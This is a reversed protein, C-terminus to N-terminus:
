EQSVIDNFAQGLDRITADLVIYWNDLHTVLSRLLDYVEYVQFLKNDNTVSDLYLVIRRVLDRTAECQDRINSDKELLYFFSNSYSNLMAVLQEDIDVMRNRCRRISQAHYVYKSFQSDFDVDQKQHAERSRKESFTKDFKNREVAAANKLSQVLSRLETLLQFLKEEEASIGTRISM